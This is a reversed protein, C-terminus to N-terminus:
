MEGACRSEKVVRREESRLPGNELKGIRIKPGCLDVLVAVQKDLKSTIKNINKVLALRGDNDGHSMNLRFVNVGSLILKEILEVSDSSPGLTAIIKTRRWHPILNNMGNEKRM